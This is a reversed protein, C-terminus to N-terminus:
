GVKLVDLRWRSNDAWFLAATLNDSGAPRDDDPASPRYITQADHAVELELRYGFASGAPDSLEAAKLITVANTGGEIRGDNKYLDRLNKTIGACADCNPGSLSRLAGVDGTAQAYNILDFYYKIFARAGAETAKTAANPLAPETPKQTPTESPKEITGSPTWTSMPDGADPGDDSCASLALVAVLGLAAARLTPM